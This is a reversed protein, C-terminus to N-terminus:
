LTRSKADLQLIGLLALLPTLPSHPRLAIRSLPLPPSSPRLFHSQKNCSFCSPFIVNRYTSKTTREYIEQEQRLAHDSALSPDQPLVANYLTVFHDYLSKLMAKIHAPRLFWFTLMCRLSSLASSPARTPPTSAVNRSSLCSALSM